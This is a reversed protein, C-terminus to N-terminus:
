APAGTLWGSPPSAARSSCCSSPIGPARSFPPAQAWGVPGGPDTARRWCLKTLQDIAEDRSVQFRPSPWSLGCSFEGDQGTGTCSIVKGTDAYCRTQGTVPLVSNGQGRIPWVMFSQDKGGYFMRGGDMNVYWAHGPSIVATTSSWYWGHFINTFPQDEPLAPRKTQHSILSRLERRSPVRWDSYGMIQGRNMQAM